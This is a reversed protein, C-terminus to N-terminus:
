RDVCEQQASEEIACAAGAMFMSLRQRLL